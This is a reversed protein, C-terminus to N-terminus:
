RRVRWAPCCGRCLIVADSTVAFSVSRSEYAGAEDPDPDPPPHLLRIALAMFAPWRRRPSSAGVVAPRAGRRGRGVRRAGAPRRRPRGRGCSRLHHDGGGVGRGRSPHEAALAGARALRRATRVSGVGPCGAGGGSGAVALQGRRLQRRADPPGARVGGGRVGGGPGGRGRTPREGALWGWGPRPGWRGVATARQGCAEVVERVVGVGARGSGRAPDVM